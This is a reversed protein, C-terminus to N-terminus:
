VPALARRFADANNADLEEVNVAVITVDGIKEVVPDM